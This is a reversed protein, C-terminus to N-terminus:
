RLLPLAQELTLVPAFLDGDEAVRRLVDEARFRLATAANGRRAADEVERWEVPTSATPEDKARLSYACVTTKHDCFSSWL